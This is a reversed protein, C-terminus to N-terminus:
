LAWAAFSDAVRISVETFATSFPITIAPYVAACNSSTASFELTIVVSTVFIASVNSVCVVSILCILSPISCILSTTCVFEAVDSSHAAALWSILLSASLRRSIIRLNLTASSLFVTYCTSNKFVYLFLFRVGAEEYHFLCPHQCTSSM